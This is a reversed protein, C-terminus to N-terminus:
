ALFRVVLWTLAVLVTPCVWGFAAAIKLNGTSAPPAGGATAEQAAFAWAMNLTWGAAVAVAGAVLGSTASHSGLQWFLLVPLALAMLLLVTAAVKRM